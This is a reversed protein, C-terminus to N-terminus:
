KSTSSASHFYKFPIFNNKAVGVTTLIEWTIESLFTKVKASTVYFQRNGLCRLIKTEQIKVMQSNIVISANLFSSVSHHSNHLLCIVLAKGSVMWFNHLMRRVDGKRKSSIKISLYWFEYWNCTGSNLVILVASKYFKGWWFVTSQIAFSPKSSFFNCFFQM